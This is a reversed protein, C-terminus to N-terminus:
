EKLHKSISENIKAGYIYFLCKAGQSSPTGGAGKRGYSTLTICTRREERM